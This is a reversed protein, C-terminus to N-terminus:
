GILGAIGRLSSLERWPKAWLRDTPAGERNIWATQFGFGSAGAADWGNASAFLVEDPAVGYHATVLAYVSPHPKFVGAEEVTLVEGFLPGLGSADLLGTVMAPTANTLIACPLGRAAVAEVAARAEPYPPLRGYLDLLRARLDPDSLGARALTWDLADATVQAFDAHHGAVARLWTIELQKQRWNRALAAWDTAWPAEPEAEAAARLAGGVDFLTGYADFVAVRM